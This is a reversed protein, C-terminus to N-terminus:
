GGRVLLLLDEDDVADGGAQADVVVGLLLDFGDGVRGQSGQVGVCVHDRAARLRAPAGVAVGGRVDVDVARIRLLGLRQHTIMLIRFHALKQPIIELNIHLRHRLLQPLLPLIELRQTRIPRLHPPHPLNRLLPLPQISLRMKRIVRAVELLPMQHMPPRTPTLVSRQHTPNITTLM